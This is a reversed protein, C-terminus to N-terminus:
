EELLHALLPGVLASIAIISIVRHDPQWGLGDLQAILETLGNSFALTLEYAPVLAILAGAAISSALVIKRLRARKEIRQMVAIRFADGGLPEIGHRFISGLREDMADYEDKRM